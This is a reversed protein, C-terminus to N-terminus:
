DTQAATDFIGHVPPMFLLWKNECDHFIWTRSFPAPLDLTQQSRAEQNKSECPCFPSVTAM